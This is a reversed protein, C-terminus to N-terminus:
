GQPQAAPLAPPGQKVQQKAAPASQQQQVRQPPEQQQVQQRPQEPRPQDATQEHKLYFAVGLGAILACLVAVITLHPWAKMNNMIALRRLGDLGDIEVTPQQDDRQNRDAKRKAESSLKAFETGRPGLIGAL